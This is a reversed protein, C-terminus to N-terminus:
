LDVVSHLPNTQEKKCFTFSVSGWFNSLPNNKICVYRTSMFHIFIDRKLLFILSALNSSSFHLLVSRKWKVAIGFSRAWKIFPPTIQLYHSGNFLLKHYSMTIIHRLLEDTYVIIAKQREESRSIREMIIFTNRILWLGRERTWWLYLAGQWETDNRKM